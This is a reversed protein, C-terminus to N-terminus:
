KPRPRYSVISRGHKSCWSQNDYCVCFLVCNKDQFGFLFVYSPVPIIPQIFPVSKFVFCTCFKGQFAVLGVCLHATLILMSLFYSKTIHISGSFKTFILVHMWKM